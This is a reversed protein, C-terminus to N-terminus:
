PTRPKSEQGPYGSNATSSSLNATRRRRWASPACCQWRRFARTFAGQDAFGLLCAIELLSRSSHRLHALALDHRVEDLLLQLSLGEAQLRRRLTRLSLGLQMALREADCDAHPLSQRLLGRVQEALSSRQSLQQQAQADMLQNLLPDAQRLPMSLLAKPLLLANRPANGRVPCGLLEQYRQPTDALRHRFEVQLGGLATTETCLQRGLALWGGIAMEVVQRPIWPLTPAQWTLALWAGEDHLESHGSDWVLAEFRQLRQLAEGLTACSICAYGLLQFSRPQVQQALRLALLADGSQQEARLLLDFAKFLSLRYHPSRLQALSLGVEALLPPIDLGMDAAAPLLSDIYGATLGAPTHALELLAPSWPLTM